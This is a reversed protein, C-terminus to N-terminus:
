REGLVKPVAFFAETHAPANRLAEERTLGPTCVDERLEPPGPVLQALPEVRSTDLGNLQDMYALIDNLEQMLRVKEEATFALRALSAVHEVQELTVAM